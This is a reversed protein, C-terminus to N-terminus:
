PESLEPFMPTTESTQGTTMIEASTAKRLVDAISFGVHLTFLEERLQARTAVEEIDDGVLARVVDNSGPRIRICAMMEALLPELENWPAAMVARLGIMAVAAFGANIAEDPIPQGGRVMAGMARLAWAEAQESPMETLVFVKGEDRGPTDIKVEIVKRM